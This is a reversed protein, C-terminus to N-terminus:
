KKDGHGYIIKEVEGILTNVAENAPIKKVAEGKKFFLFENIGGAIGIDAERAEGPGNVACGMVAVRIKKTDPLNKEVPVLRREVENAIAIVDSRCRGCTPCSIIDISKYLGLSKLISIGEYIELVPSATLSVRITDGIGRQLLSGIGIANKILGMHATGAETVGIHMPYDCMEAIILNTKIMQDVDSSKVAIVIDNFDYKELLRINYVASEALAETTPRGYKALISRELSGGNVGIRIPIRKAKCVEAVLKVRGEDGINGPNIRIKDIGAYASEIALKHNFHIDAVLPLAYRDDVAALEKLKAVAKVGESDVVALRVIDCGAFKLAAVQEKVEDFNDPRANLMSQVAIKHEGGITVAGIRVERSKRRTIM